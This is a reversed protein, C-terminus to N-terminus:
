DDNNRIIISERGVRVESVLGEIALRAAGNGQPHGGAGDGVALILTEEDVPIIAYADENVTLKDPSHASFM